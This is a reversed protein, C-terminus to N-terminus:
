LTVTSFIYATAGLFATLERRKRDRKPLIELLLYYILITTTLQLALNFIDLDVLNAPVSFLKFTLYPVVFLAPSFSTYVYLDPIGKRVLYNPSAGVYGAFKHQRFTYTDYVKFDYGVHKFVEYNTFRDWTNSFYSEDPMSFAHWRIGVSVAFLLTLLVLPWKKKVWEWM